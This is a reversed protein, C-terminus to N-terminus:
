GRGRNDEITMLLATFALPPSLAEEATAGDRGTTAERRVRWDLGLELERPVQRRDGGQGLLYLVCSHSLLPSLIFSFDNVPM